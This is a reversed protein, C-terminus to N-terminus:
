FQVSMQFRKQFFGEIRKFFFILSSSNPSINISVESSIAMALSLMALGAEIYLINKFKVVSILRQSLALAISPADTGVKTPYPQFYQSKTKDQDRWTKMFKRLIKTPPNLEELVREARNSGIHDPLCLVKPVPPGPLVEAGGLTKSFRDLIIFKSVFAWIRLANKPGVKDFRSSLLHEADRLLVSAL